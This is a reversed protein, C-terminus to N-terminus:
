GNKGEEFMEEMIRRLIYKQGKAYSGNRGDLGYELAAIVALVENLM